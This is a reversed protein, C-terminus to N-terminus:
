YSDPDLGLKRIQNKTFYFCSSGELMVKHKKNLSSTIALQELYENKDERNKRRKSVITSLDSKFASADEYHFTKGWTEFAKDLLSVFLNGNGLKKRQKGYQKSVWDAIDSMSQPTM